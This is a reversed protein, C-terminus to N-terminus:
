EFSVRYIQVEGSQRVLLTRRDDSLQSDGVETLLTQVPELKDVDWVQLKGGASVLAHQDDLFEWESIWDGLEMRKEELLELTAPDRVRVQCWIPRGLAINSGGGCSYVLRTGDPSFAVSDIPAKDVLQVARGQADTIALSGRLARFSCGIAWRGDPAFASPGEGSALHVSVDLLRTVTTGAPDVLEGCLLLLEGPGSAVVRGPARRDIRHSRLEKGSRTDLVAARDRYQVLLEAGRRGRAVHVVGPLAVGPRGDLPRLQWEYTDAFQVAVAMGDPALVGARFATPLSPQREPLATHGHDFWVCCASATVVLLRKGDPRLALAAVPEDLVMYECSAGGDSWWRVKTSEGAVAFSRGDPTVTFAVPSAPVDIATEGRRLPGAAALEFLEGGAVSLAVSPGAAAGGDRHLIPEGTAPVRWVRGMEDGVFWVVDGIGATLTRIPAAFVARVSAREGDHVVLERGTGYAFHVGDALWACASAAVNALRLQEEGTRADHITLHRGACLLRTAAPDLALAVIPQRDAQATWRQNRTWGHFGLLEGRGGGLVILNGDPSVIATRVAKAGLSAAQMLRVAEADVRLTQLLELRVPQQAALVGAFAFLAVAAFGLWRRRLM